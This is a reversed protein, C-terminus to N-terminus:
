VLLNCSPVESTGFSGFCFEIVYDSFNYEFACSGILCGTFVALFWCCTRELPHDCHFPRTVFSLKALGISSFYRAAYTVDDRGVLSRSAEM